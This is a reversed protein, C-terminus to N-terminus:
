AVIYVVNILSLNKQHGLVYELQFYAKLEKKGGQLNSLMDRNLHYKKEQAITESIKNSHAILDRNCEYYISILLISKESQIGSSRDMLLINFMQLKLRRPSVFANIGSLFAVQVILDHVM